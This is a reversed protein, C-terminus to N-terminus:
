RKQTLGIKKSIVAWRSAVHIFPSSLTESAVAQRISIRLENANSFEPLKLSSRGVERLTHADSGVTGVIGHTRAFVKAQENYTNRICRSNFTEIADVYPLIELLDKEKWAGNRHKDFPHSVSIFAGQERMREIAEMPRLGKPIEKQVFCALLEGDTTMIEEGIIILDPAIAKAELAGGISNHDTIILRDLGRAKAVRILDAPEVLSDKSYVTHCHFEVRSFIM